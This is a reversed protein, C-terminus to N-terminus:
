STDGVRSCTIHMAYTLLRSGRVNLTLTVGFVLTIANKLKDSIM